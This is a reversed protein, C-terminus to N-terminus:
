GRIIKTNVHVDDEEMIARLDIESQQNGKVTSIVRKTPSLLDKNERHKNVVNVAEM